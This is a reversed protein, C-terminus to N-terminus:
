KISEPCDDHNVGICTGGGTNTNTLLDTHIVWPTASSTGNDSYTVTRWYSTDRMWGPSTIQFNVRTVNGAVSGPPPPPPTMPPDGYGTLTAAPDMGFAMYLDEATPFVQSDTVVRGETMISVLTVRNQTQDNQLGLSYSSVQAYVASPIVALLVALLISRLPNM